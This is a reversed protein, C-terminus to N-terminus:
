SLNERCGTCWRVGEVLDIATGAHHCLRLRDIEARAEELRDFADMMADGFNTEAYTVDDHHEWYLRMM